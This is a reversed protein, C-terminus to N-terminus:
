KLIVKIRYAIIGNYPKFSVRSVIPTGYWYKFGKRTEFRYVNIWYERKM